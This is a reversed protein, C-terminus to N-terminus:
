LSWIVSADYLVHDGPCTWPSGDPLLETNCINPVTEM